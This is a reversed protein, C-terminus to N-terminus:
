DNVNVFEGFKRLFMNQQYVTDKLGAIIKKLQIWEDNAPISALSMSEAHSKSEAELEAVKGQLDDVERDKEVMSARAIEGDLRLRACEEEMQRVRALMQSEYDHGQSINMEKEQLQHQCTDLQLRCDSLQDKMTRNETELVCLQQQLLAIENGKRSDEDVCEKYKTQMKQLNENYSAKVTEFKKIQAQASSLERRMYSMYGKQAGLDSSDAAPPEDAMAAAGQSNYSMPYNADNCPSTMKSARREVDRLARSLTLNKVTQENYRNKLDSYATQLAFLATSSRPVTSPLINDPICSNSVNFYGDVEDDNSDFGQLISIDDDHHEM